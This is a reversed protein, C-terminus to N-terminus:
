ADGRVDEVDTIQFIKTAHGPKIVSCDRQYTLLDLPSDIIHPQKM